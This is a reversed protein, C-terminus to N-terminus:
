SLPVINWWVLKYVSVYLILAKPVGVSPIDTRRDTRGDTRGDTPGDTVCSNFDIFDLVFVYFFMFYWLPPRLMPNCVKSIYNWSQYLYLQYYNFSLLFLFLVSSSADTTRVGNSKNQHFDSLFWRQKLFCSNKLIRGHSKKAGLPKQYNVHEQVHFLPDGFHTNKIKKQPSDSIHPYVLDLSYFVFKVSQFFNM